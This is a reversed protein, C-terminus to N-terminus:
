TLALMSKSLTKQRNARGVGSWATAILRRLYPVTLFKM